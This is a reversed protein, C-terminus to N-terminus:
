FDLDNKKQFLILGLSMLFPVLYGSLANIMSEMEPFHDPLIWAPVIGIFMSLMIILISQVAMKPPLRLYWWNNFWIIFNLENLVPIFMLITQVRLSIYTM